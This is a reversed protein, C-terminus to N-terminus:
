FFILKPDIKQFLFSSNLILKKQLLFSSNLIIKKQLLFSWNLILKKACSFILKPDINQLLFSSNQILIKYFFPHTQSWNKVFSFFLSLILKKAFSFILKPTLINGFNSNVNTLLRLLLDFGVGLTIKWLCILNKLSVKLYKTKICYFEIM